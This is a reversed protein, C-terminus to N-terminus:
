RNEKSFCRLQFSLFQVVSSFKKLICLCLQFPKFFNWVAILIGLYLPISLILQTGDHKQLLCFLQLLRLIILFSPFRSLLDPLSCLLRRLGDVLRWLRDRLRFSVLADRLHSCSCNSHYFKSVLTKRYRRWVTFAAFSSNSRLVPVLM